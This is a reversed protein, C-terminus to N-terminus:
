PTRRTASIIRRCDCFGDMISYDEMFVFLIVWRRGVYIALVDLGEDVLLVGLGKRLRNNSRHLGPFPNHFLFVHWLCSEVLAEEEIHGRERVKDPIDGYDAMQMVSLCSQQIREDKLSVFHSPISIGLNTVDGKVWKDWCSGSDENYVRYVSVCTRERSRDM